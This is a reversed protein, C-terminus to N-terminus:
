GRSERGSIDLNHESWLRRQHQEDHDTRIADLQREWDTPRDDEWAGTHARLAQDRLQYPVNPRRTYGYRFLPGPTSYVDRLVRRQWETLLPTVDVAAAAEIWAELEAPWDVPKALEQLSERVARHQEVLQWIWSPEPPRVQPERGTVVFTLVDGDIGIRVSEDGQQM